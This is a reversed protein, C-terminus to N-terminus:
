VFVVGVHQPSQRQVLLGGTVFATGIPFQKRFYASIPLRLVVPAFRSGKRGTWLALYRHLNAVVPKLATRTSLGIRQLVKNGESDKHGPM